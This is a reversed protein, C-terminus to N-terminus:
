KVLFFLYVVHFCALGLANGKTRVSTLLLLNLIEGFVVFSCTFILGRIDLTSNFDVSLLSRSIRLIKDHFAFQLFSFILVKSLFLKHDLTEYRGM